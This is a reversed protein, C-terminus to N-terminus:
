VLTDLLKQAMTLAKHDTLSLVTSSSGVIKDSQSVGYARDEM